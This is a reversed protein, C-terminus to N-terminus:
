NTWRVATQQYAVEGWAKTDLDYQCLSPLGHADAYAKVRSLYTDGPYAAFNWDRPLFTAFGNITPLGLHDAVLMAAVNRHYLSENHDDPRYATASEIVYFSRCGVPPRAMGDLMSLEARVDLHTAPELNVQSAVLLASAAMGLLRLRPWALLHDILLAVAICVPVSLVIWFRSLSRVGAAGPVAQYLLWWLSHTGIRIPIIMCVVGAVLLVRQTFTFKLKTGIGAAIVVAIVALIVDPSFGVVFEGDRLLDPFCIDFKRFVPGWVLSGTGINLVDIPRVAYFLAANYHHGGGERLKPVYAALFPMACVLFVVALGIAESRRQKALICLRGVVMRRDLVAATILAVLCYLGLFWAMYFSTMLWAAYAIAFLTGWNRFARGNEKAATIGGIAKIGIALMLPAFAVSLLQGHSGQNSSNLMLTFLAAGVLCAWARRHLLITLLWAMSAFGLAKVMVHVYEQAMLLNMGLLRFPLALLGYVLYADNYGLVDAAPHFYFESNWGSTFTAVNFWHGVLVAEIVADYQDGFIVAFCSEFQRHFFLLVSGLGCGVFSLWYYAAKM